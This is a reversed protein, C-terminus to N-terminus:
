SAFVLLLVGIVAIVAAAALRGVYAVYAAGLLVLVGLIFVLLDMEGATLAAIV